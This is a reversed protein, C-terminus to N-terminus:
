WPPWLYFLHCFIFLFNWNTWWIVSKWETPMEPSDCIMNMVQIFIIIWTICNSSLPGILQFLLILTLFCNTGLTYAKYRYTFCRCRKLHSRKQCMRLWPLTDGYQSPPRPLYHINYGAAYYGCVHPMFQPEHLPQGVVKSFAKWGGAEPAGLLYKSRIQYKLWINSNFIGNSVKDLTFHLTSFIYPCSEPWVRGTSIFIRWCPCWEVCIFIM